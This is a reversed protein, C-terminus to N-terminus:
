WACEIEKEGPWLVPFIAGLALGTGAGLAVNGWGTVSSPFRDSGDDHDAPEDAVALALGAMAGLALGTLSAGLTPSRAQKMRVSLIQERPIYSIAEQSDTQDRRVLGLGGNDVYSLKGVMESESADTLTLRLQSGVVLTEACPNAPSGEDQADIGRVALSPSPLLLLVALLIFQIRRPM